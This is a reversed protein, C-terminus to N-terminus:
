RNVENSILRFGVGRATEICSAATGGDLAKRLSYIHSRLVDSGPPFDGWLKEEFEQRTVYSPSAQLLMVLMTFCTKNLYIERNNVSVTRAGTDVSIEGVQLISASSPEYRRVLAQLRAELERLSFPKILYDDAGAGFGSLKDDITDRATLMIIPAQNEAEKRYRECLAIGDIKPLMIDLVIVDFFINLALHLGTIGDTAYDVTHGKTSLYQTINAALDQNDEIVLIHLSTTGM